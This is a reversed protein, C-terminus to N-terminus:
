SAPASSRSCCGRSTCRRRRRPLRLARLVARGRPRHPAPPRHRPQAAARRSAAPRRPARRLPRDARRRRARGHRHQRDRRLARRRPRPLGHGPDRGSRRRRGRAARERALAGAARLAHDRRGRRRSARRRPDRLQGLRLRHRAGARGRQAGLKPLGARAEGGAGGRAIEAGRSFIACSYTMSRRPVARLVRAVRRLPPPGRARRAGELTASGAPAARGRRRPRCAHRRQGRARRAAAARSDRGDLPPPKWHRAARDGRRPRRGRARRAVYARGLGLQGPRACPTPSRARRASAHLDARRRRHSSGRHRGLARGRVPARHLAWRRSRVGRSSTLDRRSSPRHASRM